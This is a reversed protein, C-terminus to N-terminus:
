KKSLKDILMFLAAPFYKLRFNMTNFLKRENQNLFEPHIFSLFLKAKVKNRKGYFVVAGMFFIESALQFLFAEPIKTLDAKFYYDGITNISGNKTSLIGGYLLCKDEIFLESCSVTKSNEHERFNVLIDEIKLVKSSGHKFLYMMWWELDMCFHLQKNLLGLERIVTMKFFTAPQNIRPNIAMNNKVDFWTSQDSEYSFNTGFITCKGCVVDINNQLFNNAVTLLTGPNYYDDSNLWNFIEGSAKLIGKNIADSQGNDKESVWYTLYKEYKKIIDVSNDTSGGDIIIYELNPYNQNIVSLITEEIYQGQNFSPTVISIKPYSISYPM